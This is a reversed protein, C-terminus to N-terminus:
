TADFREISGRPFYAKSIADKGLASMPPLECEVVHMGTGTLCVDM